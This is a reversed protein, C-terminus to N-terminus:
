TEQFKSLSPNFECLDIQRDRGLALILPPILGYEM